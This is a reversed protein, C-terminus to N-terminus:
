SAPLVCLENGDPDALLVRGGGGHGSDTRTAGLAVLQDVAAQQAVGIAPALDLHLRNKPPKPAVPPGGWSIISGGGPARIATEEDQDWILPWGLAASWFRGVAETGDCSLAGLRPCGALFRNEPGILCLENGEPDALVVHDEDPGQGVDLHTAGLGLLQDVSGQQDALSATTLDLHIRGQGPPRVPAPLFRIRFSTADTPVLEVEGEVEDGVEWRLAAAWFRALAPPDHADFGLAALRVGPESPTSPGNGATAM